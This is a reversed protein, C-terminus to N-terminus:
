RRRQFWRRCRERGEDTQRMGYEETREGKQAAEDRVDPRGNGRERGSQERKGHEGAPAVRGFDEADKNHKFDDSGVVDFRVDVAAM